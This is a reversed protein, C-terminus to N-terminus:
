EISAVSYRGDKFLLTFKLGNPIETYYSNWIHENEIGNADKEITRNTLENLDSLTGDWGEISKLVSPSLKLTGKGDFFFNSEDGTIKKLQDYDKLKIAALIGKLYQDYNVDNIREAYYQLLDKESGNVVVFM